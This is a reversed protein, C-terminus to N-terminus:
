EGANREAEWRTWLDMGIDADRNIGLAVYVALLARDANGFSWPTKERGLEHWLTDFPRRDEGSTAWLYALAFRIAFSRRPVRYHCEAVAEELAILAKARLQHATFRM